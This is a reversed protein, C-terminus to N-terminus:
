DVRPEGCKLSGIMSHPCGPVYGGQSRVVPLAFGAVGATVQVRAIDLVAWGSLCLRYLVHCKFCLESRARDPARVKDVIRFSSLELLFHDM